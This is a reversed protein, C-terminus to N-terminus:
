WHCQQIVTNAVSTYKCLKGETTTRVTHM